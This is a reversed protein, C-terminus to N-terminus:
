DGADDKKKKFWLVGAAALLALGMVFGAVCCRLLTIVPAVTATVGSEDVSPM